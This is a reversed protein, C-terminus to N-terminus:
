GRFSWHAIEQWPGGMYYHASLGSIRLPRSRFSGSLEAFLAKAVAPEAKNQITIHLRPRAMDQPTLLGYFADALKDRISLLEPSEIRFAVGNGLLMVDTLFAAPPPSTGALASLRTKIEALHNPPLHHFLTIHADLYNREPPFHARRLGNAWAQDTKGMNATIIIPTTM